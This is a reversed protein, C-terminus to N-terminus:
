IWDMIGSHEKHILLVEEKEDVFSIAIDLIYFIAAVDHPYIGFKERPEREYVYVSSGAIMKSFEKSSLLMKKKRLLDHIDDLPVYWPTCVTNVQLKIM